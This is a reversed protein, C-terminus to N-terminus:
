RFGLQRQMFAQMRDPDTTPPGKIRSFGNNKEPNLYGSRDHAEGEGALKRLGSDTVSDVWFPEFDVAWYVAGKGGQDNHCCMCSCSSLQEQAWTADPDEVRAPDANTVKSSPPAPSGPGPGEVLSCDYTDDFRQGDPVCTGNTIQGNQLPALFGDDDVATLDDDPGCGAAWLGIGVFCILAHCRRVTSAMARVDRPQIHTPDDIVSM